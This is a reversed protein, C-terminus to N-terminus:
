KNKKSNISRMKEKASEMEKPTFKTTMGTSDLEARMMAGKSQLISAKVKFSEYIVKAMTTNHTSKAIASKLKYFQPDAEIDQRVKWEAAKDNAALIKQGTEARWKRYYSDALEAEAEANAWVEGWYSMQAAVQDMESSIDHIVMQEDLNIEVPKGDVEMEIVGYSM